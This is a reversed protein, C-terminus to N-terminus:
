LTSVWTKSFFIRRRIRHGNQIELSGSAVCCEVHIISATPELGLSQTHILTALFDYITKEHNSNAASNHYEMPVPTPIICLLVYDLAFTKTTSPKNRM